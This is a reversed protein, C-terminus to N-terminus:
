SRRKRGRLCGDMVMMGYDSRRYAGFRIAPSEFGWDRKRRVGAKWAPRGQRLWAMWVTQFWAMMLARADSPMTGGARMSRAVESAEVRREVLQAVLAIAPAPEGARCSWSPLWHLHTSEFRRGRPYSGRARAAQAVDRYSQEHIRVMAPAPLSDQEYSIPSDFGQRRDSFGGDQGNSSDAMYYCAGCVMVPM